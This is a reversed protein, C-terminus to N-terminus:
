FSSNAKSTLNSYRSDVDKHTRIYEDDALLKAQIGNEINRNLRNMILTQAALIAAIQKQSDKASTSNISSYDGSAFQPVRANQIAQIVHPYNVMLNKTTAPDVILEPKEGVLIAPSNILGTSPSDMVPASYTKGDQNGIVDYKGKAFQPVPESAITAIQLARRGGLMDVAVGIEQFRGFLYFDIVLEGSATSEDKNVRFTLTNILKRSDLLGQSIIANQLEEKLYMGYGILRARIFCWELEQDTM